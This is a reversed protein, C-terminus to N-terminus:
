AGGEGLGANHTRTVKHGPKGPPEDAFFEVTLGICSVPTRDRPQSGLPLGSWYEQRSFGM